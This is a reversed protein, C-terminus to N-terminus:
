VDNSDPEKFEAIVEQLMEHIPNNIQIEQKETFGRYKGLTSLLWKADQTNGDRISKYLSATAMDLIAEKEDQLARMTDEDKKIWADATNWYVGLRSAITSMIGGSDKIAAIIAKKSKKAMGRGM